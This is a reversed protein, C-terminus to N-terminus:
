VSNNGESQHHMADSQNTKTNYIVKMEKHKKM